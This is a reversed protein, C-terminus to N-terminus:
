ALALGLFEWLLSRGSSFGRRRSRQQRSGSPVGRDNPKRTSDVLKFWQSGPDCREEVRVCKCPNAVVNNDSDVDLCGSTGDKLKTSLHMQSDTIMEWTSCDGNLLQVPRWLQDARLCSPTTTGQLSLTQGTYSWPDSKWCAGLKLPDLPTLGRLVCLGTSPHFILKHIEAEALGPGQFPRQLASLKELFWTNRIEVWDWNLLGYPESMGVVGEGLYYSGVITWIAWDVDLEAAYGLFCNIFREDNLNTGTQDIGFESVFLPYQQDLLFTASRKLHNIVIGCVQNTNGDAWGDGDTFGYWHVEFVLKKSFTLNVPQNNLFSLDGDYNLGSLIVLIDPNAAHVAEAGRTMYRYWDNSNQKPGRLENRLSMAVVNTYGRFMAAMRTLGDVWLDPTFFEDGFFGNGDYDRCCWGPKTVHNDLVVMVNNEGLRGVVEKFAQLLSLDIISPNHTEMGAIPDDLQLRRFSERVTTSGLTANTVLYLPWTFRVCNFGMSTIKQAIENIPLRNLGEAVMPELHSALNVCALKMRRGTSDDVIWRSETSLPFASARHLISSYSLFLLLFHLVSNRTIAAFRYNPQQQLKAM